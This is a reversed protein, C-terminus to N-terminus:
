AMVTLTPDSIWFYSPEYVRAKSIMVLTNSASVAISKQVEVTQKLVLTDYAGTCPICVASDTLTLVHYVGKSQQLTVTQVLSLHNSASEISVRPQANQAFSISQAVSQGSVINVSAYDQLTLVQSVLQVNQNVVLTEVFSLQDYVLLVKINTVVQEKFILVDSLALDWVNM